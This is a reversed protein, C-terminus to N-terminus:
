ADERCLQVVRERFYPSLTADGKGYNWLDAVGRIICGTSKESEVVMPDVGAGLMYQKVEDIYVSLLDDMYDSTIGLATKVKALFDM